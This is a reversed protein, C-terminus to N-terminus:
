KASTGKKETEELFSIGSYQISLILKGDEGTLTLLVETEGTEWFTQYYGQGAAIQTADDAIPNRIAQRYRKQPDGFANELSRELKIFKKLYTHKKIAEIDLLIRVQYLKNNKFKYGIYASENDIKDNGILIVPDANITKWDIKPFCKKVQDISMGWKACKYGEKGIGAWLLGPFLGLLLAIFLKERIHM